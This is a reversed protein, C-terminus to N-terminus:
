YDEQQKIFSEPVIFEIHQQLNTFEGPLLGGYEGDINLQM